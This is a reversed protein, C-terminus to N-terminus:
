LVVEGEELVRVWRHFCGEGVVEGGRGAGVDFGNEDAGAASIGVAGIEGREINRIPAPRCEHPNM